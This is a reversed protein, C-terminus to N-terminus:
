WAGGDMPNELCSYQLPTSNGEGDSNAAAQLSPTWLRSDKCTVIHRQWHGECGGLEHSHFNIIIVIAPVRVHNLAFIYFERCNDAKIRLIMRRRTARLMFPFSQTLWNQKQVQNPLVPILNLFPKFFSM